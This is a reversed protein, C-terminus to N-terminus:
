NSRNGFFPNPYFRYRKLEGSLYLKVSPQFVQYLQSCNACVENLRGSIHQWRLNRYRKSLWIDIFSDRYINGMHLHKYGLAYCCPMFDGNALITPREWLDLCTLIGELPPLTKDLWEFDHPPVIEFEQSSFSRMISLIEKKEELSLKTVCEDILRRGDPTKKQEPIGETILHQYCLMEAGHEKLVKAMDPIEEITSRFLIAHVAIIPYKSNKERKVEALMKMNNLVRELDYAKGGRRIWKYTNSSVTDLSVAIKNHQIEVLEEALDRTLITLNTNFYTELNRKKCHGIAEILNRYLLPEGLGQIHVGRLFGYKYIEDVIEKFRTIELDHYETMKECGHPCMICKLNCRNTPEIQLVTPYITPNFLAKIISRMRAPLLYWM